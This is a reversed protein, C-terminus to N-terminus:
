KAIDETPFGGLSQLAHLCVPKSINRILEYDRQGQVSYQAERKVDYYSTEMRTVSLHALTNTWHEISQNTSHSTPKFNSVLTLTPNTQWKFVVPPYVDAATQLVWPQLVVCGCQKSFYLRLQQVVETPQYSSIGSACGLCCPVGDLFLRWPIFFSLPLVMFYM